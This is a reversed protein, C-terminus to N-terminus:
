EGGGHKECNSGSTGGVLPIATLLPFKLPMGCRGIYQPFHSPCVEKAKWFSELRKSKMIALHHEALADFLVGSM